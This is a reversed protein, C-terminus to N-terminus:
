QTEAELKVELKRRWAKMVEEFIETDLFQAYYDELVFDSCAISEARRDDDHICCEQCEHDFNNCFYCVKRFILFPFDTM